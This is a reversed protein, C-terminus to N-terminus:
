LRLEGLLMPREINVVEADRQTIRLVTKYSGALRSGLVLAANLIALEPSTDSALLIFTSAEGDTFEVELNVVYTLHTQTKM